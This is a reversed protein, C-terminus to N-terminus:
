RYNQAPYMSKYQLSFVTPRWINVDIKHSFFIVLPFHNLVM